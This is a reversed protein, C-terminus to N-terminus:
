ALIRYGLRWRRIMLFIVLALTTIILTVPYILTIPNYESLALVSLFFTVIFISFTILNEQHPANYSKRFTPTYGAADIASLLIISILPSKTLPWFSVAILCSILCILDSKTINTTGKFYSFTAILLCNITLLMIYYGGAGAGAKIQAYSTVGMVFAWILWTFTHPKTKNALVTGLYYILNCASILAATGALLWKYDLQDLMHM